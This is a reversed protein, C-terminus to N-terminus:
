LTLIDDSASIMMNFQDRHYDSRSRLHDVTTPNPTASYSGARFSGGRTLATCAREYLVWLVGHMVAEIDSSTIDDDTKDVVMLVPVIDGSSTPPPELYIRSDIIDWDGGNLRELVTILQTNRLFDWVASEDVVNAPTASRGYPDWYVEYVGPDTLSNGDIDQTPLPYSGQNEVTTITAWKYLPRRRRVVDWIRSILATMDFDDDSPAIGLLEVREYIAGWDIAM